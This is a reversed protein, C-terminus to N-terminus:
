PARRATTTSGGFEFVLREAGGQEDLEFRVLGATFRLGFEVPSHPIMELTPGGLTCSLKGNKIFVEYSSGNDLLYTGVVNKMQSDNLDARIPDYPQKPPEIDEASLARVWINRFRVPNGHYQLVLPPPPERRSYNYYQMWSTPGLPRASDQILVGNHLVTIRAPAKLGGDGHFRPARFVVDYSQWEGPGRSANVLPPYQGYIAGAQGDAYTPNDFSDLIQVEFQSQFVIGSNGRGQGKGQVKTPSAWEVHLQVDGFGQASYASGGGDVPEMVGDRIVWNVPGGDANRWADLSTGDFLVTADSPPALPLNSVGPKVVNPLPRNMDHQKWGTALQGSANLAFATTAVVVLVAFRPHRTMANSITSRVYSRLFVTSGPRM